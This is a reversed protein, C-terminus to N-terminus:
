GFAARYAGGRRRADLVGTKAAEVIQPAAQAVIRRVSEDGNAALNFHFVQNVPGGGLAHNPIVHADSRPVIMEPGREGVLYSRGASVPGGDARAGGFAGALAGLIGGGGAQFTGVLRQVVLVRYLEALIQRAMDRFADSAKKTGDFIAMFGQEM